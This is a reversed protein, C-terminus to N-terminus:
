VEEGVYVWVVERIWSRYLPSERHLTQWEERTYVFLDTPVPLETADWEVSRREFPYESDEVVIVLDLDSGVGWDGRAYSGFYGVRLVDGRTHVRKEAWQCLTEKVMQANPWRLVSSDLSRVPM